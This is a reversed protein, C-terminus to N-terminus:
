KEIYFQFILTFCLSRDYMLDGERKGGWSRTKRRKFFSSTGRCHESKIVAMKSRYDILDIVSLALKEGRAVVFKGPDLLSMFVVVMEVTTSIVEALIFLM